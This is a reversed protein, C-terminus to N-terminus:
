FRFITTVAWGSHGAGSLRERYELNLNWAPGHPLYRSASSLYTLLVGPGAEIRSLEAPDPSQRHDV